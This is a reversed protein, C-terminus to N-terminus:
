HLPPAVVGVTGDQSASALLRGDPSWSLAWVSDTHSSDYWVPEDGINSVAIRYDAFETPPRLGGFTGGAAALRGGDPSFALAWVPGTLPHAASTTHGTAADVLYVGYPGGFQAGFDGVGVAIAAGTPMWAVSWLPASTVHVTLAVTEARLIVLDGKATALALRDGSWAVEGVGGPSSYTHQPAATAVDWVIANGDWSGSALATGDPSWALGYVRDRHRTLHALEGGDQTSWISVVGSSDASAACQGNPSWAAATPYRGTRHKTTRGDPSSWIQAYGDDGASLVRSGDPSFAVDTVAARHSSYVLPGAVSGAVVAPTGICIERPNTAAPPQSQQCATTGLILVAVLVRRM